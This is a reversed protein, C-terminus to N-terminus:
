ERHRWLFSTIWGDRTAAEDPPLVVLKLLGLRLDLLERLNQLVDAL